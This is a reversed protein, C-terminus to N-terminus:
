NNISGLLINKLLSTEVDVLTSKSVLSAAKIRMNGLTLNWDNVSGLPINRNEIEVYTSKSILSAAKILNGLNLNRDNVSGLPIDGVLSKINICVMKM